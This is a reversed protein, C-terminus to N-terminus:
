NAGSSVLGANASGAAQGPNVFTSFRALAAKFPRVSGQDRLRSINQSSDIRWLTCQWDPLATEFVCMAMAGLTGIISKTALAARGVTVYASLVSNARFFDHPVGVRVANAATKLQPPTKGFDM